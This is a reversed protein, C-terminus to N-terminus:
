ATTRLIPVRRPVWSSRMPCRGMSLEMTRAPSTIEIPVDWNDPTFTVSARSATGEWTNSSHLPVHVSSVPRTSLVIQFM